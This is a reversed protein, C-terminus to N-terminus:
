DEKDAKEAWVWNAIIATWDENYGDARRDYTHSNTAEEVNYFYWASQPNDPWLKADAHLGAADVYRVLVRNIITMAEARTILDDPRFTGDEYGTIWGLSVDKLIYEKAWHKDVDKFANSAAMAEDAFRVAITAFEARTIPANPKFTGDPYGALYGGKALSSVAKNFWDGANVDSFNNESTYIVDLDADRMLRYFITAVEARTINNLPRVDGEPYGIVYAHHEGDEEKQLKSPVTKNVWKGYFATDDNVTVADNTIKTTMSPDSYWGDFTYGERDEPTGDAVTVVTGDEVTETKVTEGNVVWSVKNGTPATQTKGYFTTSKNITVEAKGMDDTPVKETMAEDLYWGDFSPDDPTNSNADVTSGSNVNETAVVKGDVNWTVKYTSVGGGGGGGSTIVEIDEADAGEYLVTALYTESNPTEGGINTYGAMEGAINYTGVKAPVKVGGWTFIMDQFGADTKLEAATAFNEDAGKVKLTITTVYNDGNEVTERATDVYMAKADDSFGEMNGVAVSAPDTELTFSKPYTITVTFEGYVPIDAAAVGLNEAIAIYRDFAEEVPSMDLQCQLKYTQGSAEAKKVPDKGELLSMDTPVAITQNNYQTEFNPIGQVLPKLEALSRAQAVPAVALILALVLVALVSIRKKM